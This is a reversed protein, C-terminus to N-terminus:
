DCAKEIERFSDSSNVAKERTAVIQEVMIITQTTVLLLSTNVSFEM